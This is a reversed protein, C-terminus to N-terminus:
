LSYRIQLCTAISLEPNPNLAKNIPDTNPDPNLVLNLDTDLETDPDPEILNPQMLFGADTFM